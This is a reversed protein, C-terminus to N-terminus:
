RRVIGAPVNMVYSVSITDGPRPDPYGDEVGIRASRVQAPADDHTYIIDYFRTGHIDILRVERLTADKKGSMIMANTM